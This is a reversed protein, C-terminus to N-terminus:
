NQETKEDPKSPFMKVLGIIGFYIISLAIFIGFMGKILIDLAIMIDSM